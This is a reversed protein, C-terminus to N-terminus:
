SENETKRKIVDISSNLFEGDIVCLGLHIDNYSYKLAVKWPSQINDLADEFFECDGVQDHLATLYQEILFVSYIYRKYIPIFLTVFFVLSLINFLFYYSQIYELM